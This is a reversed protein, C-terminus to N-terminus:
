RMLNSLSEHRVKKGCSQRIEEVDEDKSELEKSHMQKLREMEMELRLKAQGGGCVCM